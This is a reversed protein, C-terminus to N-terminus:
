FVFSKESFRIFYVRDSHMQYYNFYDFLDIYRRFKFRGNLDFCELYNLLVKADKKVVYIFEASFDSFCNIIKSDGFSISGTLCPEAEKSFILLENKTSSQFVLRSNLVIKLNLSRMISENVNLLQDVEKLDFDYSSLYHMRPPSLFCIKSQSFESYVNQMTTKKTMVLNLDQDFVYFFSLNSNRRYFHCVIRSDHVKVLNFLRISGKLSVRKLENYNLDTIELERESTDYFLLKNFNVLYGVKSRSMCPLSEYHNYIDHYFCRKYFTLENKYFVRELRFRQLMTDADTTLKSYKFYLKQSKDRSNFVNTENHQLKALLEARKANLRKTQNNLNYVRDIFAIHTCTQDFHDFYFDEVRAEISKFLKEIHALVAMKTEFLNSETRAKSIHTKKKVEIKEDELM